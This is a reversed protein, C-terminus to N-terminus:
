SKREETTKVQAVEAGFIKIAEKVMPHSLAQNRQEDMRTQREDDLAQALTVGQDARRDEVSLRTEQGFLERCYKELERRNREVKMQDAFFSGPELAICVREASVELPYAHNLVSGLSPRRRSVMAVLKQWEKPFGDSTGVAQTAPKEVPQTQPSPSAKKENPTPPIFAPRAPKETRGGGQGQERPPEGRGKGGEIERSLEAVRDVLSGIEVLPEVASLRLLATELTLRPYPSRSLESLARVLVDFLQHWRLAEAKGAQARLVTREEELADVLSDPKELSRYLILNRVHWLLGELFRKLDHGEDFLGEVLRMLDDSRQEIVCDIVTAFMQSRALGLAAYVQEADVKDGAFALVQDTLSLADRMSGAAERSIIRLGEADIAAGEAGLIKQLRELIIGSPIRKFDFRQCRSLVTLPIKHPETTAFVFKVHEPPEELTKLLANFASTSLMHVEDIIYIKFRSRAPLYRSNERLSRVDDVGTNSAGDIEFVDPSNGGTIERCIGCSNDPDPTPGQECNLAKALLRAVSTKGVGRAGCFLYAHAVRNTHIANRLTRIVGDQGVVEDFTSPRWKRALVLYSM